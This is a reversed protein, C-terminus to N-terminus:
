ISHFEKHNSKLQQMEYEQTLREQMLILKDDSSAGIHVEQGDSKLLIHKEKLESLYEEIENEEMGQEFLVDINNRNTKDITDEITDSNYTKYLDRQAETSGYAEKPVGLEEMKRYTKWFSKETKKSKFGGGIQKYVAAKTKKFGSVSSTEMELFRRQAFLQNRLAVKSNGKSTFRQNGHRVASQYAPSLEDYGSAELRKLRKNAAAAGVRTAEKLQAKSMQTVQEPTLNMLDKVTM